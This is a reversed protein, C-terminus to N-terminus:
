RLKRRGNLRAGSEAIPIHVKRSESMLLNHDCSALTEQQSHQERCTLQPFANFDSKLRRNSFDQIRGAASSFRSGHAPLQAASIM